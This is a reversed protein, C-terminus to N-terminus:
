GCNTGGQRQRLRLPQRSWSLSERIQDELIETTWIYMGDGPRASRPKKCMRQRRGWILVYPKEVAQAILLEANMRSSKDSDEGCIIVVEDSAAIPKRARETWPETVTGDDSEDPSPSSRDGTRSQSCDIM